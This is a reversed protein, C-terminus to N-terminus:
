RVTAQLAKGLRAVGERIELESYFAFSLRLCNRMGGSVSCKSGPQYGAGASRAAEWLDEADLDPPLTVWFFYGGEPKRWSAIGGLHRHLAQDMAAVRAGYALRLEALLEALSGDELMQRVVHSGFHNFCGGSV